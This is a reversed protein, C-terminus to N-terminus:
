GKRFAHDSIELGHVLRIFQEPSIELLDAETRPWRFRKEDFRMTLLLFGDPERLLGKIRDAKRGCFLFLTGPEYPDKRFHYNVITSLGEIGKRLDTRGLAIFIKKFQAPNADTFM